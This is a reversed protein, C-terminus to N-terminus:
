MSELFFTSRTHPRLHVELKRRLGNGLDQASDFAGLAMRQNVTVPGWEKPDRKRRQGTITSKYDLLIGFKLSSSMGHRSKCMEWKPVQWIELISCSPIPFCCRQNLGGFENARVPRVQQFIQPPM